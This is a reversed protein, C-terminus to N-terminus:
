RDINKEYFRTFMAIFTELRIKKCDNLSMEKGQKELEFKGASM